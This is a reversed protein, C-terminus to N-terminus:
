DPGLALGFPTTSPWCTSIGTGRRMRKVSPPVLFALPAWAITTRPYAHLPPGQCIRPRMVRPAIGAPEHAPSDRVGYRRSFSRPLFRTGTGFGVCTPLYLISLHDLYGENLFEAFNGRLKPILPAGTPHLRKGASGSPAATFLDLRSNVLFV